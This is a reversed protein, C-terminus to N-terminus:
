LANSRLRKYFTFIFLLFGIGIFLVAIFDGYKAYFTIRKYLKIDGRLAATENYNTSSLVEGDANIIASTGTNAARVVYRRLEIARLRAFALHQQYGPTDDWWGDNTMIFLAQAGNRVYGGCYDGYISEYCIVPAIGVGADDYFLSRETQRGLGEVSGGMSKFLGELWGFISRFPLIEPGPVLKSKKYYPIVVQHKALQLAGNYIEYWRNSRKRVTNPLHNDTTPPYNKILDFGGILHLKPFSDILNEYANIAPFDRLKDVDYYGFSTEPLILYRTNLTINKSSLTIFHNLQTPESVEFKEYHPEYNPQLAVVEVTEPKEVIYSNFNKVVYSIFIPLLLIASLSFVFRRQLLNKFFIKDQYNNKLYNFIFLNAILVWLGGGFVGTFEYWQVWDPHNAFANGITLWCWSLDWNLHLYEWAFWYAIFGLAGVWRNTYKQTIYYGLVPLCMFFANLLNAILGAALGANGVWWTALINWIVFTNYAFRMVLRKKHQVDSKSIEDIVVLLPIFAVFLLPTLWDYPPFGAALFLGSLSSLGLWRGSLSYKTYLPSTAFIWIAWGSSLLLFTYWSWLPLNYMKYASLIFIIIAVSLGILRTKKRM